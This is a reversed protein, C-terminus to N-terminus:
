EDLKSTQPEAHEEGPWSINLKAVARTMVELLEEYQPLVPPPAEASECEGEESFSLRLASGALDSPHPRPSSSLSQGTEMGEM